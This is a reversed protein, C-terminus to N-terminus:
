VQRESEPEVHITVSLGPIEAELAKELRDCLAHAEAVTLSGPVVLHFELFARHGAKRTKLDHVELAKGSLERAILAQIRAVEEPSLGEDMLGGLSERVLRFGM